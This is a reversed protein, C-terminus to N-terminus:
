NFNQKKKKTHKSLIAAIIVTVPASFAFNIWSFFEGIRYADISMFNVLEGSKTSAKSISDLKLVKRFVKASIASEVNLFIRYTIFYYYNDAISRLVPCILLLSAWLIGM